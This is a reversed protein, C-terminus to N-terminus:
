VKRYSDLASLEFVKGDGAHLLFLYTKGPLIEPPSGKLRPIACSPAPLGKSLDEAAQCGLAYMAPRIEIEAGPQLDGRVVRTVQVHFFRDDNSRWQVTAEVAESSSALVQDFDRDMPFVLTM